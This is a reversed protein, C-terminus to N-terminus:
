KRRQGQVRMQLEEMLPGLNVKRKEDGQQYYDSLSGDIMKDFAKEDEASLADLSGTDRGNKRMDQRSSALFKRRDEKTLNTWAKMLPQFQAEMIAKLYAKREPETLEAIFLMSEGKTDDERLQRRQNLDLLNYFKVIQDLFAQREVPSPKRGHAWPPTSIMAMVKEPTSVSDETVHMVFGVVSWIGLLTLLLPILISPRIM